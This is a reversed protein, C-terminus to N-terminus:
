GCEVPALSHRRPSRRASPTRCGNPSGERRPSHYRPLPRPLTASSPQISTPSTTFTADRAMGQPTIPEVLRVDHYHRHRPTSQEQRDRDHSKCSGFIAKRHRIVCIILALIALVVLIQVVVQWFCERALFCIPNYFPCSTCSSSGSSSVRPSALPVGSAGNGTGGQPGQDIITATTNWSIRRSDVVDYVSNYLTLNCTNWGGKEVSSVIDYLLTKTALPSLTQVTATVPFTGPTCNRVTVYFDAALIGTNMITVSLKGNKSAAEFDSINFSVIVGAAVNVSFSMNDAVFTLVVLSAQVSNVVYAVYAQSYELEHMSANRRLENSKKRSPVTGESFSAFQGLQSAFYSGRKGAAISALDKTRYDLLQNALCSGARMKCRNGQSNFAEYSVGVKNCESGDDTVLSKDLILWESPAKAAVIPHSLPMSPVFLFKSELALPMSFAAFDGVLRASVGFALSKAGLM